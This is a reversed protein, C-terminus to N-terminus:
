KKTATEKEAHVTIAGPEPCVYYCIGCATCQTSRFEAYQYGMKNISSGIAICKKPCFEVCLRCGKCEEPEISIHSM